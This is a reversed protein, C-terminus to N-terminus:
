EWSASIGSLMGGARPKMQVYGVKMPARWAQVDSDDVHLRVTKDAIRRQEIADLNESATKTEADVVVEKGDPLRYIANGLDDTAGTAEGVSLTYEYNLNEAIKAADAGNLYGERTGQLASELEYARTSAVMTSNSGQEFAAWVGDLKDGGSALADIVDSVEMGAVKAIDQAQKLKETDGTWAAIRQSYGATDLAGSVDYAFQFASDRAADAAEGAKAFADTIVGVGAAALAAAGGLAPGLAQTVGGLTGQVVDGISEMSGDFSSAVESVNALTEDKFEAGADAAKGFGKKAGDGVDSLARETKETQKQADRLQEELDKASRETKDLDRAGNRGADSAADEIGEFAKEVDELPEIIGSRVGQEFAKADAGITVEHAKAM